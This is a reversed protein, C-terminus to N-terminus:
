REAPRPLGGKWALFAPQLRVAAVHNRIFTRGSDHGRNSLNPRGKLLLDGLSQRGSVGRAKLFGGGPAM